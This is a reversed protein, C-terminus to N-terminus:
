RAASPLPALREGEGFVDRIPRLNAAEDAAEPGSHARVFDRKFSELLGYRPHPLSESCSAFTLGAAVLAAGLNPTLFPRLSAPILKDGIGIATKDLPAALLNGNRDNIAKGTYPSGPDQFRNPLVGQHHGAFLFLDNPQSPRAPLPATYGKPV